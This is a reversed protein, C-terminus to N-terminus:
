FVHEIAKKLGSKLLINNNNNNKKAEQHTSYKMNQWNIHICASSIAILQM